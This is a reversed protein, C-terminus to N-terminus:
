ERYTDIVRWPILGVGTVTFLGNCVQSSIEVWKDQTDKSSTPIWGLLFLVIAAGWFACLFGYIATFAGIPTNVFAWLGRAARKAKARRSSTLVNKVHKDLEHDEQFETDYTPSPILVMEGDHQMPPYMRSVTSSRSRPGSRATSSRRRSPMDPVQDGREEQILTENGRDSM